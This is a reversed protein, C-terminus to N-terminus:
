LTHSRIRRFFWVAFSMYMLVSLWYRMPTFFTTMYAAPVVLTSSATSTAGISEFADYYATLGFPPKSKVPEYSSSLFDYSAQSPYFAWVLANQFCGTINSVGCTSTALLSTTTPSTGLQDQWGSSVVNLVIWNDADRLVRTTLAGQNYAYNDYQLSIRWLYTHGETLASAGSFSFTNTTEVGLTTTGMVVHGGRAAPDENVPLVYSYGATTDVLELVAQTLPLSDTSSAFYTISLDVSTTASTYENAPSTSIIRSEENNVPPEWGGTGNFSVFAQTMPTYSSCQSDRFVCPSVSYGGVDRTGSPAQIQVVYYRGSGLVIPTTYHFTVFSSDYTVSSPADLVDQGSSCSHEGSWPVACGDVEFYYPNAINDSALLAGDSSAITISYITLDTSPRFVSGGQGITLLTVEKAVTIPTTTGMLTDASAGFPALTFFFFGFMAALFVASSRGPM